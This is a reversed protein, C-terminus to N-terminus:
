VIHIIHERQFRVKKQNAAKDNSSRYGAACCVVSTLGKDPLDLIADYKAPDFGEMPCTDIGMLAASTIFNGLALYAQHTAWQQAIQGRTGTVVDEIMMDRFRNLGDITGGRIEIVRAVHKDIHAETMTTHVAFVIYHSCDLVQRQNWTAPFLKERTTPDTIVIFKWPQLGYSSPSLILADELAAWDEPSIKRAPDFQKTAYRWNLQALLQEGKIPNVKFALHSAGPLIEM